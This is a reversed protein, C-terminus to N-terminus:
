KSEPGDKIVIGSRVEVPDGKVDETDIRSFEYRAV